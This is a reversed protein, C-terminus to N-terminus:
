NRVQISTIKKKKSKIDKKIDTIFIRFVLAEKKIKNKLLLFLTEYTYVMVHKFIGSIKISEWFPKTPWTSNVDSDMNSILFSHIPLKDLIM